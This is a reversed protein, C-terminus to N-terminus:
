NLTKVMHRFEAVEPKHPAAPTALAEGDRDGDHGLRHLHGRKYLRHLHHGHQHLHRCVVFGDLHRHVTGPLGAGLASVEGAHESGHSEEGLGPQVRGEEVVLVECGPLFHDFYKRTLYKAINKCKGDGSRTQRTRTHVVEGQLQLEGGGQTVQEAGRQVRRSARHPGEEGEAEVGRVAEQRPGHQPRPLRAGGRGGGAGGGRPGADLLLRLLGCM